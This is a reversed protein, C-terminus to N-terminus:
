GPDLASVVERMREIAADLAGAPPGDDFLQVDIERGDRDWVGAARGAAVVVPSIWGAARSVEARRESALIETAATGPGLVYQDFAPLLRVAATPATGALDDADEALLYASTGEVDVTVLDDGLAAFWSRLMGKRSTGRTLWVDFREMTAPGHARLYAPVVARAAEDPEPLGTWAPLLRDPRTFTVRNGSAPGHCLV